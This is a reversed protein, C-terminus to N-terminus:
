EPRGLFVPPNITDTVRSAIELFAEHIIQQAGLLAYSLSLQGNRIRYRFRARVEVPDAGVFPRLALVFETPIEMDGAEGAKANQQEEFRFQVEGSSLRTASKFAVGTHAQFTQAIELMTAADPFVVQAANDELHEAFTVQDMWTKDKALWANWEDSHLLELSVRHDGHGANGEDVGGDESGSHANIVGVLARRAGDAWVETAELEHKQVYEIFSEADQVHVTGRKRRPTPALKEELAEIDHVHVTAGAPAVQLYFRETDGIAHPGALAIGADIAAQTDNNEPM